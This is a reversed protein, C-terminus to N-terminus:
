KRRGNFFKIFIIFIIAIIIGYKPSFNFIAKGFIVTGTVISFVASILVVAASVDKIKGVTESYEPHLLDMIKEVLTNLSEMMIVIFVSVIIWLVESESLDLIISLLLAALGFNTQIRFNKQTKYIESLGKLSFKLSNLFRKLNNLDEEM